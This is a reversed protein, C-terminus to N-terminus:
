RALDDDPQYEFEFEGIRVREGTRAGARALARDVGLRRLRGQAYALAEANTLDSLAVARLAPRGLVEWGGDRAREVAVGAPEPRHVVFRPPRPLEARAQAVATAMRGLLPRLGEGTWASLREGAWGDGPPGDGAGGDGARTAPRPRM